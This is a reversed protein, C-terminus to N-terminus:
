KVVVDGGKKFKIVVDNKLGPYDLRIKYGCLGKGCDVEYCACPVCPVDVCVTVPCCTYPHIFTFEHLGPSLNNLAGGCCVDDVTLATVAPVAEVPKAEDAVNLIAPAAGASTAVWVALTTALGFIPRMM